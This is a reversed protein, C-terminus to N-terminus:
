NDDAAAVPTGDEYAFIVQEMLWADMKEALAAEKLFVEGMNQIVDERTMTGYYASYYDQWYKVQAEYEETTVTEMGEQEAIAHVIMDRQVMQEAMKTLETRWDTGAAFGFYLPMFSALDPYQQRFSEGSYSLYSNYYYEAESQYVGFYYSVEAAPLNRCVAADTLHEWLASSMATNLKSATQTVLYNCVYEEFEALLAVDSAYFEKEPQYKLTTEVFERNYEPLTYQVAYEVAIQFVAEKGALEENYDEPFTVTIETPKTKSTTNPVVGVLAEEFGPIFSGSGLGLTFPAEDDWNSGGEFEVGNLFGKYYIYADDGMALPKDKVMTTGKVAIRNQFRINEIYAAVDEAEIKLSNPVTLHLNTYATRDIDVDASVNAATYDHRPAATPDNQTGSSTTGVTTGVTTDVGSEATPGNNQCSTLCSALSLGLLVSALLAPLIKTNKLNM